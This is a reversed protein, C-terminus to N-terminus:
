RSEAVSRYLSWAGSRAILSHRFGGTGVLERADLGRVLIEDYETVDPSTLMVPGLPAIGPHPKVQIPLTWAGSFYDRGLYGGRQALLYGGFQLYPLSGSVQGHADLVFDIVRARPKAAAAIADFDRAEVDFAHLQVFAHLMSWCAIILPLSIALRARERLAAAPLLLPAFLMGLVAVRSIIWLSTTSHLPLVLYAFVALAFLTWLARADASLAAWAEVSRPLVPWILLGLAGSL